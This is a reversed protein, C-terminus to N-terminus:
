TTILIIDRDASTHHVCLSMGEVLTSFQTSLENEHEYRIPGAVDVLSHATEVSEQNSM